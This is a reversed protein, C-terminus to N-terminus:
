GGPDILRDFGKDNLQGVYLSVKLQLIQQKENFFSDKRLAFPTEHSTFSKELVAGGHVRRILGKQKLRQLDSRITAQTVKLESALREVRVVDQNRFLELIRNEREQQILVM